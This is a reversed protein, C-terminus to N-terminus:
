DETQVIYFFYSALYHLEVENTSDELCAILVLQKRRCIFDWKGRQRACNILSGINAAFIIEHLENFNLALIICHSHLIM